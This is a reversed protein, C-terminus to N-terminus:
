GPPRSSSPLHNVERLADLAASTRLTMEMATVGGALLAEAVPVADEARDIVLM